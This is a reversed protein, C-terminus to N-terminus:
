RRSEELRQLLDKNITIGASRLALLAAGTTAEYVPEEIRTTCKQSDSMSKRFSERVRQNRTLVSGFVFVPVEDLGVWPLLPTVLRSLERGAELEIETWTEADQAVENAALFGALSALRPCDFGDAYLLPILEALAGVEFHECIIQELVGGEAQAALVARSGLWFASGPDGGILPGFGGAFRQRGESNIAMAVSGTGAIVLIGPGGATAGFAAAVADGILNEREENKRPGLQELESPSPGDLLAATAITTYVRTHRPLDTEISSLLEDLNRRFLSFSTTYFNLPGGSARALLRGSEDLAMARSNSGGGDIGVVYNNSPTM